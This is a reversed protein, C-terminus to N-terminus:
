RRRGPCAQSLLHIDPGGFRLSWQRSACMRAAPEPMFTRAREEGARRLLLANERSLRSVHLDAYGVFAGIYGTRAHLYGLTLKLAKLVSVDEDALDASVRM